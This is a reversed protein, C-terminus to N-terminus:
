KLRTGGKLRVGGKLHIEALTTFSLEGGYGWGALNHAKARFYYTTGSSLGTITASFTGTGAPCTTTTYNTYSGSTISWEFGCEDANAGGTNTIEGNLTAQNKTIGTAALTSVAPLATYTCYISYKRNNFMADTPNTPSAYSNTQDELGQNTDGTDYKLDIPNDAIVSLVYQTNASLSPSTSFSSTFWGGSTSVVVANGVGNTVINLNSRLVLVGKANLTVYSYKNLGWFTISNATRADAPSTFVSGELWNLSTSYTTAGVTTYGFTPDISVPYVAKDLFEQPITVTLLGKAEDINLDCWTTNGASDKALPRYIHFAKGTKYKEAEEKTKFFKDQTEYYVAYSGVVNEPRFSDAIGDGNTDTWTPHDPYLPPQYYFKLGKTEIPFELINSEPKEYLITDFEVGGGENQKFSFTQGNITETVEEPKKPYFEVDIKDSSYRLKNGIKEPNEDTDFPIKVKLSVENDWKNLKLYPKPPSHRETGIEILNGDLTKFAYTTQDVQNIELEKLEDKKTETLTLNRIEPQINESNREKFYSNAGFVLGAVILAPLIATFVKQIKPRYKYLNM